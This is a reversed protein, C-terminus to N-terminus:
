MTSLYAQASQAFGMPVFGLHERAKISQGVCDRSGLKAMGEDFPLLAEVGLAKSAKAKAIALEAPIARAKIDAKALPVRAKVFAYLEPMLLSQSGLLPYVEGISVPKELAVVVMQAVDGVFIPEVRPPEFEPRPFKRVTRAFYPMFAFPLARGCAWNKVMQMFEGDPGHILGPRFITWDLGSHRIIAEGAFKSQAYDTDAEEQAAHASIHVIRDVGTKKAADVIKEPVEIHLRHFSQGDPAERLIGITNVIAQAGELAIALPKPDFPSGQVVQLQDSVPLVRSAKDVSRVLARVVVGRDLLAKVCHRGVFGTAGMVAVTTGAIDTRQEILREFFQSKSVM